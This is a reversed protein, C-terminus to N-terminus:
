KPLDVLEPMLPNTPRLRMSKLLLELRPKSQKFPPPNQKLEAAQHKHLTNLEVLIYPLVATGLWGSYGTFVSYVEYKEHDKKKLPISITKTFPQSEERHTRHINLVFGGQEGTFGGIKYPRPGIREKVLANIKKEEESGFTGLGARIAALMAPVKMRHSEVNGTEITYLVGHADPWRLSQKFESFTTGDDPIFGHPICVGLETPIENPQRVRFNKLLKLFDQKHKEQERAELEADMDIERRTEFVYIFKDRMLYARFISNYKKEGFSNATKTWYAESNPLGTDFAVYKESDEKITEEWQQIWKDINKLYRTDYSDLQTTLKTKNLRDVRARAEKIKGKLEEIYIFPTLHLVDKVLAPNSPGIVAIHTDGFKMEDGRDFVHKSFTHNFIPEDANYFTPWEIPGALDFVLRGLCEQKIGAPSVYDPATAELMEKASPRRSPEDTEVSSNNATVQGQSQGCGTALLLALPLACLSSRFLRSLTTHHTM